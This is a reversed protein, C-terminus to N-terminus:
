AREKEFQLVTKEIYSPIQDRPIDLAASFEGYLLEEARKRYEEDIRGLAHRGPARGHQKAYVTKLIRVLGVCGHDHLAEDYCERQLFPGASAQPLPEIDPLRRILGQAEQRTMVPRLHETRDTPVYITVKHGVPCLTYYTRQLDMGALDPVGVSLVRCVGEAGYVVLQGTQFM